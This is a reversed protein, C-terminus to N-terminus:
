YCVVRNRGNEKAQYLAEDARAILTKTDSGDEPYTSVGISLTVQGLPQSEGDQWVHKEVSQRLREGFIGAGAKPAEPVLLIFEEGGYRAVTTTSRSNKDILGALGKLLDDGAPHGFTDNYRKFRDVDIFLLSFTRGHRKSGALEHELAELFYRRNFLGTLADRTALNTLQVNLEELEHANTKLGDLITESQRIQEVKEAARDIVASIAELDEFPKMVYDYAGSRLAATASELSANSTMIVVQTNPELQKIEHLLEVGSMEQMFVDTMVIPFPSDKFIELAAEGSAATTVAYGTDTLVQSIITRLGSEDDVVLVRKM